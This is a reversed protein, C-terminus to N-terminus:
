RPVIQPKTKSTKKENNPSGVVFLHKLIQSAHLNIKNPFFSVGLDKNKHQIEHEIDPFQKADTFL